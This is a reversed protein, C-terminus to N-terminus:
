QGWFMVVSGADFRGSPNTFGSGIFLEARGDGDLDTASNARGLYDKSEAGFVQVTATGAHAQPAWDTHPGLFGYVRGGKTILGRRAAIAGVILDGTGDGNLDAGASLGYGLQADDFEGHIRASPEAGIAFLDSGGTYVAVSGAADFGLDDGPAGIALEAEAEHDLNGVALTQGFASGAGPGMLSVTTLAPSYEGGLPAPGGSLIDVRGRNGLASPSGIVLDLHGDGDLDGTAMAAGTGDSSGEGRFSADADLISPLRHPEPQGFIIVVRGRAPYEYGSGIIQRQETAFLIDGIGDGNLDGAGQVASGARHLVDEGRWTHAIELVGGPYGEGSGLILHVSGAGHLGEGSIGQGGALIDDLGDGNADPIIAVATGLFNGPAEGYLTATPAALEDRGPALWLHTAGVDTGIIVEDRIEDETPAGVVLDPWGDGDVDGSTAIAYGMSGFGQQGEWACLAQRACTLDDLPALNEGGTCAIPPPADADEGSDGGSDGSPASSDVSAAHGGTHEDVAQDSSKACGAILLLTAARRM